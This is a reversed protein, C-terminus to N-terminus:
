VESTLKRASGPCIVLMIPGINRGRFGFRKLDQRDTYCSIQWDGFVRKINTESLMSIIDTIVNNAKTQTGCIILIFQKKTFLICYLVFIKILMTKGFGRPLGIALQSFDRTKHVYSLLWTWIGQFVPPFLYKFVTPLALAALFDLSNKASDEVEATRFSSEKYSPTEFISDQSAPAPSDLELQTSLPLKPSIAM